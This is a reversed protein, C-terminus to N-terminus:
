LSVFADERQRGSAVKERDWRLIQHGEVAHTCLQFFAITIYSMKSPNMHVQPKVERFMVWVWMHCMKTHTLILDPSGICNEYFM